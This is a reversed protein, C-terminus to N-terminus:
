CAITGILTNRNLLLRAAAVSMDALIALLASWNGIGIVLM